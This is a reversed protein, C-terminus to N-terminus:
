WTAPFECMKRIEMDERSLSDGGSGSGQAADAGELVNMLDGFFGGDGKKKKKARKKARKRAEQDPDTITPLELYRQAGSLGDEPPFM